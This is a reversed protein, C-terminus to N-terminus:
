LQGAIARHKNLWERSQNVANIAALLEQPSIPGTRGLFANRVENVMAHDAPDPVTHLMREFLIRITAKDDPVSGQVAQVFTLFTSDFAEHKLVRDVRYGRRFMNVGITPFYRYREAQGVTAWVHHDSRVFDKLPFTIDGCRFGAVQTLDYDGTDMITGDGPLSVGVKSYVIDGPLIELDRARAEILGSKSRFTIQDFVGVDYTAIYQGTFLDGYMGRYWPVRELHYQSTYDAWPPPPNVGRAFFGGDFRHGNWLQFFGPGSFFNVVPLDVSIDIGYCSYRIQERAHPSIALCLPDWHWHDAKGCCANFCPKHHVGWLLIALVVLPTITDPVAPAASAATSDVVLASAVTSDVNLTSREATPPQGSHPDPSFNSNPTLPPAPSSAAMLAAAAAGSHHQSRIQLQAFLSRELANSDMVFTTHGDVDAHFGLNSADDTQLRLDATAGLFFQSRTESVDSGLSDLLDDVFVGGVGAVGPLTTGEHTQSDAMM